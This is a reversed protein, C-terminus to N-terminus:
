IGSYEKLWRRAKLTSKTAAYWWLTHSLFTKLNFVSFVEFPTCILAASTFLFPPSFLPSFHYWSLKLIGSEGLFTNEQQKTIIEIAACVSKLLWIIQSTKHWQSPLSSFVQRSSLSGNNLRMGYHKISWIRGEQELFFGILPCISRLPSVSFLFVNVWRCVCVHVCVCWPPSINLM